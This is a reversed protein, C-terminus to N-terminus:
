GALPYPFIDSPEDDEQEFDDPAKDSLRLPKMGFRAVRLSRLDM